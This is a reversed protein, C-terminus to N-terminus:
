FICQRRPGEDGDSHEGGDADDYEAPPRGLPAPGGLGAYFAAVVEAVPAAPPAAREAVLALLRPADEARVDIVRTERHLISVLRGEGGGGLALSCAVQLEDEVGLERLKFNWLTGGEGAKGEVFDAVGHLTKHGIVVRPLAVGFTGARGGLAAVVNDRAAHLAPVNVWDYHSTQRAVHHHGRAFAARMVALAAWAEPERAAAPQALAAAARAWFQPPYAGYDEATVHFGGGGEDQAARLAAADAHVTPAALGVGFRTDGCMVVEALVVALDRYVGAFDELVTSGGYVFQARYDAPAGVRQTEAHAPRATYLDQAGRVVEPHLNRILEPVAKTSKRPRPPNAGRPPKPAGRVEAHERLSGVLITRLTASAGAVLILRSSARTAAVTLVNPLGEGAWEKNYYRFYTEDFGVVIVCRRECGKVSNYSLIALKDRMVLDDAAGDDGAAVYTPIQALHNRVLLAVPSSKSALSRVSPALVFVQSVGFEAIAAHVAASLAAATGRPGGAAAIYIPRRDEDRLNGGVLVNARYLHRNVFAATAPTLRHSVRLACTVWERGGEPARYLSPAETLFGPHGGRYENISQLEDGVVLLQAGPNADLLRRVFAYQEAAMDQAEDIYLAGFRLPDAPPAAVCQRLQADNRVVMKYSRGAAAHYTLAAVNAPSRRAVEEQLRKSYTLLLHRVAPARAACMLLTTTKGAGAVASVCANLGCAMANAISWQELTPCVGAPLRMATCDYYAAAAAAADYPPPPPPAQLEVASLGALAPCRRQLAALQRAADWAVFGRCSVAVAALEAISGREVAYHAAPSAAVVWSLGDRSINVFILKVM